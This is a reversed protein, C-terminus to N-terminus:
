DNRKNWNSLVAGVTSESIGSVLAVQKYLTFKQKQKTISIDGSLY